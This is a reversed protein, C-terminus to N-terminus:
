FPIDDNTPQAQYGQPVSQRPPVQPAAYPQQYGQPTAYGQPAAQPPQAYGQPQPAGQGAGDKDIKWANISNYWKGQYERADVDFHVTVMDGVSIPYQDVKDGFLTFCMKKPYTEITEVVADLKKWVNGRQSTGSQIPLVVIIKGKIEM